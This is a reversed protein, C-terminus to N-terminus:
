KLGAKEPYLRFLLQDEMRDVLEFGPFANPSRYLPFLGTVLQKELIMYQINFKKAVTLSTEPPGDPIVVAERRSALWFGAPNNIMVRATDPVNNETLLKASINSRRYSEEWAPKEPTNGLVLMQFIFITVVLSLLAIGPVYM